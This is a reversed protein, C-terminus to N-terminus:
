LRLNGVYPLHVGLLNLVAVIIVLGVLLYIVSMIRSDIPVFLRLLYLAIGIIVLLVILSLM